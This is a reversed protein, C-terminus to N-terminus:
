RVASGKIKPSSREGVGLLKNNYVAVGNREVMVTGDNILRRKWGVVDKQIHM